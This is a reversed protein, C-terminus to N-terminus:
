QGREHLSALHILSKPVHLHPKFISLGVIVPPSQHHNIYGSTIVLLKRVQLWPGTSLEHTKGHIAHHTDWSRYVNVLPDNSKGYGAPHMTKLGTTFHITATVGNSRAPM